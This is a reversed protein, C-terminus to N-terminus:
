ASSWARLHVSRWIGSTVLRPGYDRGFQFSAKRTFASTTKGISAQEYEDPLTYRLKNLKEMGKKVPSHFYIRLVNNNERIKSKCNIQYCRFMNDTKVLLSDNLYVDAYTDLGDFCLEVGDQDLIESSVHFTTQYEWDEKEIWQVLQENMRYFPDPIKKNRLLDSIVCGPIKAPLWTLEGVRRFQWNENLPRDYFIEDNKSSCSIASFIVLLITLIKWFQIM